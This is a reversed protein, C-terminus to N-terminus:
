SPPTFDLFAGKFLYANVILRANRSITILEDGPYNHSIVQGPPIEDKNMAVINPPLKFTYGYKLGGARYDNALAIAQYLSETMPLMLISNYLEKDVPGWNDKVSFPVQDLTKYQQAILYIDFLQQYTYTKLLIRPDKISYYKFLYIPVKYSFQNKLYPAQNVGTQIYNYYQSRLLLQSMFYNLYLTTPTCQYAKYDFPEGVKPPCQCPFSM